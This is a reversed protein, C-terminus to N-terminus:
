LDRTSEIRDDGKLWPGTHPSPGTTSRDHEEGGVSRDRRVRDQQGLRCCQVLTMLAAGESGGIELAGTLYGAPYILWGFIVLRRLRAMATQISPELIKSDDIGYAGTFPTGVVLLITLFGVLGQFFWYWHLGGSVGEGSLLM